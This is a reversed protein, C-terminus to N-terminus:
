TRRLNGLLGEVRLIARLNFKQLREIREKGKGLQSMMQNDRASRNRESKTPSGHAPNGAPVSPHTARDPPVDDDTLALLQDM